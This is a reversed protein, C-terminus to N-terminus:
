WMQNHDSNNLRSFKEIVKVKEDSMSGETKCVNVMVIQKLM